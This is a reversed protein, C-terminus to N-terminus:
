KRRALWVSILTVSVIALIFLIPVCFLIQIFGCIVVWVVAGLGMGPTINSIDCIATCSANPVTTTVNEYGISDIWFNNNPAGTVRSGTFAISTNVGIFKAPITFNLFTWDTFNGTFNAIIDGQFWQVSTNALEIAFFNGGTLNGFAYFCVQNYTPTPVAYQYLTADGVRLASDNLFYWGSTNASYFLPSGAGYQQARFLIGSNAFGSASLRWLTATSSAYCINVCSGPAPGCQCDTVGDLNGYQLPICDANATPASMFLIAAVLFLMALNRM